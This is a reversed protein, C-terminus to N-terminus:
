PQSMSKSMKQDDQQIVLEFRLCFCDFFHYVVASCSCFTKSVFMPQSTWRPIAIGKMWWKRLRRRSRWEVEIQCPNTFILPSYEFSRWSISFKKFITFPPMLKFLMAKRCGVWMQLYSEQRAPSPPYLWLPNAHRQYRGSFRFNMADFLRSSCRAAIMKGQTSM